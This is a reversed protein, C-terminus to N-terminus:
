FNILEFILIERPIFVISNWDSYIDLIFILVNYSDIVSSFYM